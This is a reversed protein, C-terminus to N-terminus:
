KRESCTDEHRTVVIKSKSYAGCYDCAWVLEGDEAESHDYCVREVQHVATLSDNNVKFIPNRMEKFLSALSKSSMHHPYAEIKLEIYGPGVPLINKQIM